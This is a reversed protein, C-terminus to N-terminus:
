QKQLNTCPRTTFAHAVTITVLEAGTPFANFSPEVDSSYPSFAKNLKIKVYFMGFFVLTTVTCQGPFM